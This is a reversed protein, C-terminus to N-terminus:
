EVSVEAKVARYMLYAYASDLFLFALYWYSASMYMSSTCWAIGSFTLALQVLPDRNRRVADISRVFIWINVAAMLFYSGMDLTKNLSGTAFFTGTEFGILAFSCIGLVAWETESFADAQRLSRVTICLFYGFVGGCLIDQIWEGSWGIWLAISCASFLATLVMEKTFPRVAKPFASTLASAFLLFVASEGIENAAFPMRADPRIASYAVWYLDSVLFCIMAFLFFVAAMSRNERDVLKLTRMIVYGFVMVQIFNATFELTM